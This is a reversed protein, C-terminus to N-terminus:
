LLTRGRHAIEDYPLAAVQGHAGAFVDEYDATDFSISDPSQEIPEAPEYSNEWHFQSWTIRDPRGQLTATVAGCALDGCEGCVFLYVRGTDLGDTPRIGLLERVASEVSPLWVSALRLEATVMGRAVRLRRTLADGDIV